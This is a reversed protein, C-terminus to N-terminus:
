FLAPQDGQENEAGINRKLQQSNLVFQQLMNRHEQLGVKDKLVDHAAMFASQIMMQRLEEKASAFEQKVLLETEKRLQDKSNQTDRETRERYSSVMDQAVRFLVQVEDDFDRLKQECVQYSDEAERLNQQAVEIHQQWKEKRQRLFQILPKRLLYALVGGLIMFNITSFLVGKFFESSGHTDSSALALKYFLPLM